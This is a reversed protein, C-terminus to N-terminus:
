YSSIKKRKPELDPSTVGPPERGPLAIDVDVFIDSVVLTVLRDAWIVLFGLGTLMAPVPTDGNSPSNKRLTKHKPIQPYIMGTPYGWCLLEECRM